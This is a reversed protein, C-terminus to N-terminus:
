TQRGRFARATNRIANVTHTEPGDPRGSLAWLTVVAGAYTVAGSVVCAALLASWGAISDPITWRLQIQTVVVAMLAAAALPRWAAALLRPVPLQLLRRILTFDAVATVTATITVAWAAGLVGASRIGFILAPIMILLSGALVWVLYQPRGTALFIPGSGATILGLFGYVSLVQILPISATWQTGLMVRVLPEAILGTGVAMPTGVLMVFAFVDVFGKALSHADDSVKAYAPFIARRLPALFSSTTLNAVEFAIGYTGVAQAGVLRGLAFTDSRNFFFVCINNAVLWKSFHMIERWHRISLRPRFGHMIYSLAIQVFGSGVIGAVLAWYNRWVFALPVTIMFASMKQIVNFILDKHFALDKRFDVIGINQFGGALMTVALWYSIGELRPDGLLSAVLPAGAGLCAALIANRCVSLTWATDYYERSAHQNQILVVDFSFETVVALAASFSTALVVLGFDAPVLVRALIVTSVFGIGQVSFRMLVTWATARAMERGM